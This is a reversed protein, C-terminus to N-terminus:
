IRLYEELIGKSELEGLWDVLGVRCKGRTSLVEMVEAAVEEASKGTADVECVKGAGHTNLVEGLCVDLIESALNEWLKNGRYGREEMLRRLEVPNRRLVIIRTVLHKPVVRVAYHGDVVVNIKVSDEIIRRIRTRMRNEDVIWTDRNEDKGVILNHNLALETLNVYEANLRDAVVKAVTTKGVCPTGTILIVNKRM